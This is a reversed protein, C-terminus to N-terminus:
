TKDAAGDLQQMVGSVRFNVQMVKMCRCSMVFLMQGDASAVIYKYRCSQGMCSHSAM